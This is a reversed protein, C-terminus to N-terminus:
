PARSRGGRAGAVRHRRRRGARARRRRRDGAGAHRLGDGRADRDPVGGVALAPRVPGARAPLPRRNGRVCLAAGATRGRAARDRRRGRGGAARQRSHGRPLGPRPRERARRRRAGARAPGEAAAARRGHGRAATRRRLRGAGDDADGAPCARAGNAVVETRRRTGLLRAAEEREWECTAVICGTRPVLVQELGRYLVRRARSFGTTFAFCHPNYFLRERGPLATRVLGGARSSHAHVIDFRRERDLERLM